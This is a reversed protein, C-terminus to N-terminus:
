AGALDADGAVPLGVQNRRRAYVLAVMAGGFVPRGGASREIEVVPGVHPMRAALHGARAAGPVLLVRAIGALQPSRPRSHGVAVARAIGIRFTRALVSRPPPLM